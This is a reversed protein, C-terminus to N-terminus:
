PLVPEPIDPYNGAFAKKLFRALYKIQTENWGLSRIARVRPDIFRDFTEDFRNGGTAYHIAVRELDALTGAHGYPATRAIERLSPTKFARITDATRLRQPLTGARGLDTAVFKSAYEFGNNHVLGDSFLPPTHCDMCRAQKFLQFGIEEDDTLATKDGALRRDIPADFSVVTSEFAAIARALRPGTIPSQTQLDPPVTPNAAFTTAFLAVYGPILRLRVLVDNESQRGMEIPNSLPLLSQTTTDVTRADWFMLPQYSAGIITPSHRTGVQGNIGVALPLGDAWGKRPDHCTSCSVTGDASLRPDFFLKHGLAVEAATPKQGLPGAQQPIEQARVVVQGAVFLAVLTVILAVSRWITGHFQLEDAVFRFIVNGIIMLLCIAAAMGIFVMFGVATQVIQNPSRPFADSRAGCEDARVHSQLVLLTGVVLIVLAVSRWRDVAIGAFCCLLYWAACIAGCCAMLGFVAPGCFM